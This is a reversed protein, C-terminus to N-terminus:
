GKRSYLLKKEHVLDRPTVGQKAWRDIVKDYIVAFITAADDTELLEQEDCWAALTTAYGALAAVGRDLNVVRKRERVLPGLVDVIRCGYSDFARQICTWPQATAWRARNIDQGPSVMRLWDRTCYAWLRKINRLADYIDELEMEHLGEREISFEVRWVTSAGDWGQKYWLDHFWRKDPSRQKIEATKDYLKCSVPRGHGSFLITELKRGRYYSQDKQSPEVQGKSRARSLFVEQWDLPPTWGALDVCLDLQAAQLMLNVGFIDILFAHVEDVADQVSAKSWLYASYFTVRALVPVALRPSLALQISDNQILYKWVSAGNPRMLLRADNFTMSTALPKHQEQAKAQWAAFLTDLRSPLEQAKAPKGDADTYKVNVKVTDIGTNVIQVLNTM